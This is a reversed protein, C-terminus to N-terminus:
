RIPRHGRLLGREADTLPADLLSWDVRPEAKGAKRPPPTKKPKPMKFYASLMKRLLQDVRPHDGWYRLQAQYMPITWRQWILLPSGGEM